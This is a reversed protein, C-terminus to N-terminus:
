ITVLIILEGRPSNFHTITDSLKGRWVEQHIKTLERAIVITIDGFVVKMNELTQMLKHPACYLIITPKISSQMTLLSRFLDKRHKEKEPPYGLFLFNNTPLGSVSLAAIAASPGPISEVKIGRKVAEHVLTYGPDAILPTGADSVLAINKGQLLQDVLWPTQQNETRNDFRMFKMKTSLLLAAANNNDVPDVSYISNRIILPFRMTLEHLLNGTRRTDECAIIDVSFLTKIARITIDEM